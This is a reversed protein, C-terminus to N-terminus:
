RQKPRPPGEMWRIVLMAPVIWLLGTFLFYALHVYWQSEALKYTAITNAVLAYVVVLVIIILTGIFKRLRVPM